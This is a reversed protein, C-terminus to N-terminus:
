IDVPFSVNNDASVDEGLDPPADEEAPAKSEAPAAPKETAPPPSEGAPAPLLLLTAVLLMVLPFLRRIHSSM